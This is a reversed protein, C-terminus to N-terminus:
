PIVPVILLAIHIERQKDDRNALTFSSDDDRKFSAHRRLEKKAKEAIETPEGSKVFIILAARTDRWTLYGLLQDIAERCGKPGKWVKCEAVFVARQDGEYPIFIDTKGSRSFTEGSAPGFRNNLVVLLVDRLSEEPMKAFTKSLRQAATTVSEIEALISAFGEESIAPEPNFGTIAKQVIPVPKPRKPPDVAFSHSPDKRGVVPVDFFAELERDSLVKQRRAEVRTMLSARLDRNFPDIDAAQSRTAMEIQGVVSDLSSKAANRDIPSRGEYVVIVHDSTYGFQPPNLTFTSPRLDFLDKDGLFPIRFEIRTGDVEVTRRSGPVKVPADVAGSTVMRDVHLEIPNIVFDAYLDEVIDQVPTSLVREPDLGRVKDSITQNHGSIVASLVGKSYRLDEM